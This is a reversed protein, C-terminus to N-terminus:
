GTLYAITNKNHATPGGLSTGMSNFSQKQNELHM